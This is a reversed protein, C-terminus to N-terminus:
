QFAKKTTNERTEQSESSCELFHFFLNQVLDVKKRKNTKNNKTKEKKTQTKSLKPQPSTARRFVECRRVM